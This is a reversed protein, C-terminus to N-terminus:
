PGPRRPPVLRPLPHAPHQRRDPPGRRHQDRRRLDGHRRAQRAQHGQDRPRLDRRELILKRQDILRRDRPYADFPVESPLVGRPQTKAHVPATLSALLIDATFGGGNDRVDIVLGDKGHAAAYLDREFDRVSPLNMGRIHLYGLRGNSLSEVAARRAAVEAKYRLESEEGFSTPTIIITDPKADSKTEPKGDNGAAATDAGAAADGGTQADGGAEASGAGNVNANVNAAANAGRRIRLLTERGSKAVMFSGLDRGQTPEEDIAVIVDGVRPGKPHDDAPGDTLVSTVTLGEPGSTTEIGLYGMALSPPTFGDPGTIGMHSADLEGLLMSVVRDFEGTTRTMSALDLYRMSLGRWDLDKLTPHYFGNGIVRVAEAFKLRQQARAELVVPADIALLDVKGGAVPAASAQGSRVYSVREGTLNLVVSRLSGSAIAKRDDGKYSVSVLAPEGGAAGGAAPPTPPTPTTPAAPGESIQSFVIRDGGPTMLVTGISGSGVNVRRVRLYATDLDKFTLPKFPSPSATPNREAAKRAKEQRDADGEVWKADDWLVPDIAKRARAATAQKKYYDELEYPRLSDLSRDLTIAYLGFEGNEGARESRFVLVKGDASLRPQDDTDPHRSLNLPTGPNAGGGAGAGSDLLFIDSNFDLDERSYLVHRSDSAWQVDGINWGTTLDRTTKGILDIAVLDGMGRTVLLMRGDPSPVLTSLEMGLVGDNRGGNPGTPIAVELAKVEFTLAVAWRKALDPRRERSRTGAGAAGTGAATAGATAGGKPEDAKPEAGPEAKPESAGAAGATATAAPEGAPDAKPEAKPEGGAGAGPAAAGATPSAAAPTAAPAAKKEEIDERSMAVTAYMVRSAAQGSGAIEAEDSIFWLVRGDPSWALDRERGVTSTVRRTPWN